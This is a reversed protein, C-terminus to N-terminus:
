FSTIIDKLVHCILRVYKDSSRELIESFKSYFLKFDMSGWTWVPNLPLALFSINKLVQFQFTPTFIVVSKAPWSFQVKPFGIFLLWNSGGFCQLPKSIPSVQYGQHPSSWTTSFHSSQNFIKLSANLNWLDLRWGRSIHVQGLWVRLFSYPSIRKLSQVLPAKYRSIPKGPPETAFFRSTLTPSVPFAPEIGPDPLDGPPPFPLGSWYEQRAFGLSLPAQCAVTWPVAVHWVHSLLQTHVQSYWCLLSNFPISDFSIDQFILERSGWDEKEARTEWVM